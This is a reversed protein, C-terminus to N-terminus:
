LLKADILKEKEIEVFAANGNVAPGPNLYTIGERSLIGPSEHAHGSLVLLPQNEEIIGNLDSNGIHKGGGSKDLIGFPPVHFVYVHSKKAVRKFGEIENMPHECGSLGVFSIGKLSYSSLHLHIGDADEYAKTVPLPDCNGTVGIVRGDFRNFIDAAWERSGFHTIDGCVVICDAKLDGMYKNALDVTKTSGHIDSLVLARLTM